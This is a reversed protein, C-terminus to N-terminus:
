FTKRPEWFAIWKLIHSFDENLDKYENEILNKNNRSPIINWESGYQNEEYSKQNIRHIQQEVYEWFENSKRNPNVGLTIGNNSLDLFNVRDNQIPM